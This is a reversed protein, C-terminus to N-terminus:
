KAHGKVAIALFDENGTAQVFVYKVFDGEQEVAVRVKLQGCERPELKMEEKDVTTCDCEPLFNIALKRDSNNRFMFTASVSDGVNAKGVDVLERRVSFAGSSDYCGTLVLVLFLCSCRLINIIRKKM